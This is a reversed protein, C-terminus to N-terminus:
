AGVKFQSLYGKVDIEAVGGLISNGATALKVAISNTGTTTTVAPNTSGATDPTEPTVTVVGSGNVIYKFVQSLVFGGVTNEVGTINVTFKGGYNTGVGLTWLTVPTANVTPVARNYRYDVQATTTSGGSNDQIVIGDGNLHQPAVKIDADAGSAIRVCRGGAVQDRWRNVGITGSGAGALIDIGTTLGLGINDHIVYHDIGDGIIIGTPTAMMEIDHLQVGFVKFASGSRRRMRINAIGQGELSIDGGFLDASHAVATSASDFEVDIGYDFKYTGAGNVKVGHLRMGSGTEWRVAASPNRAAGGAPVDFVVGAGIYMDGSDNHDTNQIRIGYRVPTFNNCRGRFIWYNGATVSMNDYYGYTSVNELDAQGCRSLNLGTGSTPNGATYGNVLGFDRGVFGDATVTIGTATASSSYLVTFGQTDNTSPGLGLFKIRKTFNVGTPTLFYVGGPSRIEGGAAPLADHAAQINATDTAPSGTPAAIYQVPSGTAGGAALNGLAMLLEYKSQLEGNVDGIVASGRPKRFSIRKDTAANTYYIEQCLYPGNISGIRSDYFNNISGDPGQVVARGAAQDIAIRVKQVQTGPVYSTYPVTKVTEAGVGGLAPSIYIQYSYGTTGFIVHAPSRDTAAGIAGSPLATEWLVITAFQGDTGSASFEFEAEAYLVPLTGNAPATAYGAINGSTGTIILRGGSITPNFGGVNSLTYTQGSMATTPTGNAKVTWDDYFDFVPLAATAPNAYKVGNPATSDATLVTGDAGVPIRVTASASRGLLDGKTSLPDVYGTGGGGSPNQWTAVTGSTATPVQGVTPTGSLAVGGIKGANTAINATNNAINTAHTALTTEHANVEANTADMEAATQPNGSAAYNTPLPM